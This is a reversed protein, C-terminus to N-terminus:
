ETTACDNVVGTPIDWFACTVVRGDSGLVEIKLSRHAAAVAM